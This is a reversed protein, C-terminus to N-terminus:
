DLLRQGSQRRHSLELLTPKKKSRGQQFMPPAVSSIAKNGDTVTGREVESFKQKM